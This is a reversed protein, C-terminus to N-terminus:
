VKAIAKLVDAHRNIRSSSGWPLNFEYEIASRVASAKAPTVKTSAVQWVANNHGHKDIRFGHLAALREVDEKYHYRQYFWAGMRYRATFGNEDLFDIRSNRKNQATMTKALRSDVVMRTRGSFFFRGGPALLGNCLNLVHAEADLSDISNMVSDLVVADYGGSGLDACLRDIMANVGAKDIENTRSKRRFLEVDSVAYGRGRLASAYDGFGAGFDLVRAKPNCSLWPIVHSEYLVSRNQRGDEKDRLRCMQAFTQVYTKRALHAYSFQGYSAGLFSTATAELEDPIVCVTLPTGTIKAALAYQAAHIVKGSKTAVCGGWPGFSLIMQCIEARVIAHSGRMNAVMPRADIVHYGIRDFGGPFSADEDGADTDTGNNLQNFRVEDFLTTRKGLSYVPGTMIGLDRLATTRQHGAVLLNERVIMPKVCGIASISEKLKEREVPGILRPNYEAGRLQSLDHTLNLSM